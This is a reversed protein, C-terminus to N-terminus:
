KASVFRPIGLGDSDFFPLQMGMVAPIDGAPPPPLPGASRGIMSAPAGAAFPMLDPTSAPAMSLNKLASESFRATARDPSSLLGKLAAVAEQTTSSENSDADFFIKSCPRSFLSYLPFSCSGYSFLNLNQLSVLTM